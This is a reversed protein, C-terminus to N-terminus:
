WITQQLKENKDYFTQNVWAIALRQLEETYENCGYREVLDNILGKYKSVNGKSVTLILNSQCVVDVKEKTFPDIKSEIIKNCNGSIPPRRYSEGCKTCRVKQQGFARLNGRMDRILHRDILKSAQIENDVSYLIEGLAFQANTKQKMSELTNYPNNKPAESCDKTDHTYGFGRYEKGTGLVTEVTKIGLEFAQKSSILNKTAEYFELPYEYNIDINL